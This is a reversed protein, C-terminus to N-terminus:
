LSLINELNCILLFATCSVNLFIIFYLFNNFYMSALFITIGFALFDPYESVHKINMPMHEKMYKEMTGNFLSDIYGSYGRAVSATGLSYDM